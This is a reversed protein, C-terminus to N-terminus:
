SSKMWVSAEILGPLLPPGSMLARPCTTPMLLAIKLWDPPDTPMPKAIGILWTFGTTVWSAEVPLTVRPQSPTVMWGSVGSSAFPKWIDSSLPASTPGPM